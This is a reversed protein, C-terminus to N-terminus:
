GRRHHQFICESQDLFGIRYFCRYLSNKGFTVSGRVDHCSPHLADSSSFGAFHNCVFDSLHVPISGTLDPWSDKVPFCFFYIISNTLKDKSLQGKVAGGPITQTRRLLVGRIKDPGSPLLLLRFSKHAAAFGEGVSLPARLPCNTPKKM